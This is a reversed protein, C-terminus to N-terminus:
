KAHYIARIKAIQDATLATPEGVQLALHYVQASVEIRYAVNFAQKVDKGIALVGHNRLLVGMVAPPGALAELAAKGAAESGPSAYEAVPVPGRVILGETCILPIGKGVVALAMAYRSHTHVVSGVDPRQRLVLTHMPTESSPKRQGDIVRGHLDIIVIDEPEMTSYPVGSPTIAVHEPSARASVNGASLHLLGQEYLSLTVQHVERRISEYLM